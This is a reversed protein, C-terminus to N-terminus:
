VIMKTKLKVIYTPPDHGPLWQEIITMRGKKCVPCCEPDYDLHERCVTKWDKKIKEYHVEIGMCQQIEKLKPKRTSSLLGYHRIRVFRLPLIHICFRRLFEVGDLTMQKQKNDRYDRYTFSVQQKTVDILRHNSIAVKHTYRGLYEIVQEPGAFPEKAYVVWPNKYLAKDIAAFSKLGDIFKGRFVASMQKVPFLFAKGNASLKVHQWAGKINVGGGPVICHVHPHLSLSQGWTHLVAIMGPELNRKTLSLQNITDWASKFLLSYMKQPEYLFLKNLTDPVTFVIHFYPVPLLDSKRNEIWEECQTNQCKPCHRNRCSNYSIRIHGCEDCREVHGGLVSTRCVQLAHLTRLLHGNPHHKEKFAPLFTDIVEAVEHKPRRHIIM